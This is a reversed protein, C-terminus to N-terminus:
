PNLYLNKMPVAADEGIVIPKLDFQDEILPKIMKSVSPVVNCVGVDKLSAFDDDIEKLVKELKSKLKRRSLRTAAVYFKVLKGAKLIGFSVVTNGIDITLLM